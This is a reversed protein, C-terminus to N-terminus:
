EDYEGGYIDNEHVADALNRRGTEVMVSLSRGLTEEVWEGSVKKRSVLDGQEDLFDAFFSSSGEFCPVDHWLASLVKHAAPATGGFMLSAGTLTDDFCIIIAGAPFTTM